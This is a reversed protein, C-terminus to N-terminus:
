RPLKVMWKITRAGSVHWTIKLKLEDEHHEHGKGHGRGHHDHKKFFLEWKLEEPEGDGACPPPSCDDLAFEVTVYREPNSLLDANKPLIEDVVVEGDDTVLLEGAALVIHPHKHHKPMHKRLVFVLGLGAAFAVLLFLTADM